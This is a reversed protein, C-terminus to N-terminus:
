RPTPKGFYTGNLERRMKKGCCVPIVNEPTEPPLFTRQPPGGDQTHKKEDCVFARRVRM